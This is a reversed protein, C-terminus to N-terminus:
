KKDERYALSQIDDKQKIANIAKETKVFIEFDEISVPSQNAHYAHYIGAGMLFPQTFLFVAEDSIFALFLSVGALGICGTSKIKKEKLFDIRERAYLAASSISDEIKSKQNDDSQLYIPLGYQKVFSAGEPVEHPAASCLGNTLLYKSKLSNFESNNPLNVDKQQETAYYRFAFDKKHNNKLFAYAKIHKKLKMSYLATINSTLVIFTIFFVKANM